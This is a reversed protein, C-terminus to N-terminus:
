NAMKWYLLAGTLIGAAFTVVNNWQLVRNVVGGWGGNRRIWPAINERIFQLVWAVIRNIIETHNKTLAKYILRYGFHFFAVLRGWNVGESFIKRAVSFFVDQVSDLDVQNILRELETDRNLDAAIKLLHSVIEKVEPERGEDARGGIDEPGLHMEPYDIRASEIVYGRFVVVGQEMIKDDVTDEGGTAGKQDNEM